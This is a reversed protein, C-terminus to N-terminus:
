EGAFYNGGAAMSKNHQKLLKQFARHFGEQTLKAIVKVVAEKMDETREYHSGRLKPYLWFDSPAIDPINPPHPVANIGM